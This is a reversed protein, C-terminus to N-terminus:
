STKNQDAASPTRNGITVRVPGRTGHHCAHPKGDPDREPCGCGKTKVPIM